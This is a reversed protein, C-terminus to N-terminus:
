AAYPPIGYYTQYVEELSPQQSIFDLIRYQSVAKILADPDGHVTCFLKNNDLVVNKLNPLAAVVEPSLNSAFRMEIKRLARTRLQVGREVTVLSGQYLVAVRDCIREMETLSASAILVSRGQSRLEAVLRYLETVTTMDLGKSPEDMLVLDPRHMFAQIIALKREDLANYTHSPKTLDFNFRAALSRVEDWDIKGRLKGLRTLIQEGNAGAPFELVQPLYGVQRRIELSQRQSDMGLVNVNGSSPRVINLLIHLLTTKGAGRPGLVGYVEGPEVELTLNALARKRHFDKSLNETRIVFYRM